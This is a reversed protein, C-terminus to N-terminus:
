GIWLDITQASPDYVAIKMKEHEILLQYFPRQFFGFYFDKPMALFVKRDPEYLSMALRYEIFQGMATHFDYTPSKGIFSKIEVAIKEGGKEAGLFDELGLDIRFQAGLVLFEFPDHTIKWGAQELATRVQNHFIDKAM